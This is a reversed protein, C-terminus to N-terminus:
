SLTWSPSVPEVSPNLRVPLLLACLLPLTKLVKTFIDNYGAWIDYTLETYNMAMAAADKQAVGFGKLMTGYISAYQMFQQVNIQLEANLRNIWKYNEEAEKGFARGFRYMIGEWESAQYMYGALAAGIRNSAYLVTSLKIGTLANSWAKTGTTARNVSNNYRDTSAILRQIRSPFASFGNSVKQM